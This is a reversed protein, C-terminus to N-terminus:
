QMATLRRCLLAFFIASFVFILFGTSSANNVIRQQQLVPRSSVTAPSIETRVPIHQVVQTPQPASSQSEFAPLSVDIPKGFIDSQTTDQTKADSDNTVDSNIPKQSAQEQMLEFISKMDCGCDKCKWTLSQKAFKRRQEDNCDLSGLAGKGPTTMFAILATLATGISWSPLWTEPHYASISLCIKTNTEFRGTPTLLMLSPPKMPYDHPLTIRGHYIGGEFPSDPPGRITFHWEFLNDDLPKAVYMDTPQSLEAAERMLRRVGQSRAAM